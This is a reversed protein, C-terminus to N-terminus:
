KKEQMEDLIQGLKNIFATLFYNVDSFTSLKNPFDLLVMNKLKESPKQRPELFKYNRNERCFTHHDGCSLDRLWMLDGHIALIIYSDGSWEITKGVDAETIKM